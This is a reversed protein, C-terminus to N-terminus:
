HPPDTYGAAPPIQDFRCVHVAAPYTQRLINEGGAYADEALMGCLVGPAQRLMFNVQEPTIFQGACVLDGENGRNEDAVLVVMRRPKLAALVQPIPAFTPPPM